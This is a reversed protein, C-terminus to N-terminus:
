RWPLGISCRWRKAFTRIRSSFMPRMKPIWSALHRCFIRKGKSRMALQTMLYQQHKEASPDGVGGLVQVVQCDAVKWIPHMQEVM